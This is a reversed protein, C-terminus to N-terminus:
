TMIQKILHVRRIVFTCRFYIVNFIKNLEDLKKILNKKENKNSLRITVILLFIILLFFHFSFFDFSNENFILRIFDFKKVEHM